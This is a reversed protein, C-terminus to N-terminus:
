RMCHPPGPPTSTSSHWCIVLLVLPVLLPPPLPPLVPPLLLKLLPPLLLKLVPLLLLLGGPHPAGAALRQDGLTRPHERSGRPGAVVPFVLMPTSSCHRMFLLRCVAQHQERPPM